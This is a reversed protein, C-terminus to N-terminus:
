VPHVASTAFSTCCLPVGAGQSRRRDTRDSTGRQTGIDLVARVRLSTPAM